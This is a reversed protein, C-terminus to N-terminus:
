GRKKKFPVFAGLRCTPGQFGNYRDVLRITDGKCYSSGFADFVMIDDDRGLGRCTYPLTNQYVISGYPKYLLIDDSIRTFSVSSNRSVCNSPKGAERDGLTKALMEAQKGTLPERASETALPACSMAAFSALMAASFKFIRMASEQEIAAEFGIIGCTVPEHWRPLIASKAQPLM